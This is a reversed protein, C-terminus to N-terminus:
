TKLAGSFAACPSSVSNSLITALFIGAVISYSSSVAKAKLYRDITQGTSLKNCVTSM